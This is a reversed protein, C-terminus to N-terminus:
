DGRIKSTTAKWALCPLFEWWFHCIESSRYHKNVLACHTQPEWITCWLNNYDFIEFEIMIKAGNKLSKPASVYMTGDLDLALIQYHYNQDCESHHRLWKQPEFSWAWQSRKIFSGFNAAKLVLNTLLASHMQIKYCTTKRIKSYM